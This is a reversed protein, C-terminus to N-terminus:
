AQPPASLAIWSPREISATTLDISWLQNEGDTETQVLGSDSFITRAPANKATPRFWGQLRTSGLERARHALVSLFAQEIRRGIVRCSMLFVEVESVGGRTRLLSVGVIGNDGFRDSAKLTFGELDPEALAAELEAESFRLTTTNLQNTKGTLQASRPLSAANIPEITVQIDLSALFDELTETGGQLDRRQRDEAYYRNRDLDEASVSLRELAPLRRLRDAFTSPDGSMEVVQVGPLARRVAECEVPNDDVFVFSDVGLNLESALDMLNQPKPLWNIRMAALHASRIKMEPHNDIVELADAENNKSVVTLLIGRRSIDLIAQQLDRFFIGPSEGGLKIGDMGDEGITGGWLTNDLDLALVKAPPLALLHLHRWWAQAMWPLAQVTVPLRTTAWKKPDSWALRGHRAQLEDYDLFHTASQGACIQRLNRNIQRIADVQGTERGLDLLGQDPWLPPELGHLLINAASNARLKAVLNALTASVREIETGVDEPSLTAFGSWLDPTLDRTQLALVVTNPEFGYLGSAPNLIDQTYANFDGVWTEIRCGALAAEAQLLPLVPEVTFSRLFAVRHTPAQDYLRELRATIFRAALANPNAQWYAQAHRLASVRDGQDLALDIEARDIPVASM